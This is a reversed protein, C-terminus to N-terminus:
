EEEVGAAKLVWDPTRPEDPLVRSTGGRTLAWRHLWSIGAGGTFRDTSTYAPDRLAEELSVFRYGRAALV